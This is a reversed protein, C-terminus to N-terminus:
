HVAHPAVRVKQPQRKVPQAAFACRDGLKRSGRARHKDAIQTVKGASILYPMPTLIHAGDIGNGESGLVLNDRTTGWSAQKQVEVDPMGYKAFIGKEKAVFLPSADTLAIFGLITGNMAGIRLFYRKWGPMDRTAHNFVDLAVAKHEMEELAHWMWLRRYAPEAGDLMKPHRLLFLSFTATLHEIACTVALRLLPNQTKRLAHRIPGEMAEVDYGLAALARNYEEHERTHFAEQVAYGNIEKALERDELGAAYHKLSRIFFREGEPLFLSFCDVLASKQVHGGYWHRKPADAIRFRIDRPIIDDANLMRHAGPATEDQM